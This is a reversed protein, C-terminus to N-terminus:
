QKFFKEVSYNKLGAVKVYYVGSPLERIDITATNQEVVGQAVVAGLQNYVEVTNGASNTGVLVHIVDSSPNPSVSINKITYFSNALTMVQSYSEAGGKEIALVRYHQVSQIANNDEISYKTEASAEIKEVLEYVNNNNLKQVLFSEIAESNNV